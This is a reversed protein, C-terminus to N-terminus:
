MQLLSSSTLKLSVHCLSVWVKPPEVDLWYQGRPRSERDAAEYESRKKEELEPIYQEIAKKIGNSEVMLFKHLGYHVSVAALCSNSVM